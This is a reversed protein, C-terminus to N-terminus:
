AVGPQVIRDISLATYTQRHGTKKRNRTKNKYKFIIIKKDKGEGNCTAVVKAGEITPKGIIQQNEDAILLV